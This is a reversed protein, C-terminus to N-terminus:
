HKIYRSLVQIQRYAADCTEMSELSLWGPEQVTGNVMREEAEADARWSEDGVDATMSSPLRSDESEEDVCLQLNEEDAGSFALRNLSTTAASRLRAISEAVALVLSTLSAVLNPDNM